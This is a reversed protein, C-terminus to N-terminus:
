RNAEFIIVRGTEKNYLVGLYYSSSQYGKNAYRVVRFSGGDNGMINKVFGLGETDLFGLKMSEEEIYKEANNYETFFDIYYNHVNFWGKSDITFAVAEEYGTEFQHNYYKFDTATEPMDKIFVSNNVDEWFKAYSSYSEKTENIDSDFVGIKKLILFAGGIILLVVAIIAIIQMKSTPKYGM